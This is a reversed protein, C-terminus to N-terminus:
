LCIGAFSPIETIGDIGLSPIGEGIIRFVTGAGADLASLVGSRSDEFVTADQGAIGLQSFALRFIAGDPKSPIDLRGAIINERSFYDELRFLPIYWEMNCLPASSAIAMKAGRGKLLELVERSGPSLETNGSLCIEKYLHEKKESWFDFVEQSGDPILYRVTEADTRGNLSAFESDSLKQGRIERATEDWAERNQKEDWFLTGNFDFVYGEANPLRYSMASRLDQM